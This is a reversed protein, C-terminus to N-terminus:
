VVAIYPPAHFQALIRDAEINGTSYPSQTNGLEEAEPDRLRYMYNDTKEEIIRDALAATSAGSTFVPDKIRNILIKAAREVLRPVRGYTIVDSEDVIATFIEVSDFKLIKGSVDIENVIFRLVSNGDTDLIDVVDKVRFGLIDDVVIQTRTGVALAGDTTTTFEKQGEIWGFVGDIEINQVGEPFEKVFRAGRIYEEAILGSKFRAGTRGSTLKIFRGDVVFDEKLLLDRTDETGSLGTSIITVRRVKIIPVLEILHIASASNGDLRIVKDVPTFWQATFQNVMESQICILEFAQTDSAVAVTLGDDRLAKITTYKFEIQETIPM